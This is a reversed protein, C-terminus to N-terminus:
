KQHAREVVRARLFMMAMFVLKATPLKRGRVFVTRQAWLHFFFIEDKEDFSKM